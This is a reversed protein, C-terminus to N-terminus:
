LPYPDGIIPLTLAKSFNNPKYEDHGTEVIYGMASVHRLIPGAETLM